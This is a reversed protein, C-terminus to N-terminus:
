DRIGDGRRSRGLTGDPHMEADNQYQQYPSEAGGRPAKGSAGFAPTFIYNKMISSLDGHVSLDSERKLGHRAVFCAHFYTGTPGVLEPEFEGMGICVFRNLPLAELM